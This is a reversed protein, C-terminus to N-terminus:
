FFCFDGHFVLFLEPLIRPLATGCRALIATKLSSFSSLVSARPVCIGLVGLFSRMRTTSSSSAMMSIIEEM